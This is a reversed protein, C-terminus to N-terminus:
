GQLRDLDSQLRNRGELSDVDRRFHLAWFQICCELQPRVLTAYLPLIVEMSRSMICRHICSLTRNAKRAM